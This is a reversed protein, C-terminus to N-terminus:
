SGGGVEMQRGGGGEGGGHGGRTPLADPETFWPFPHRQREYLYAPDAGADTVNPRYDWPTVVLASTDRVVTQYDLMSLWRLVEDSRMRAYTTM